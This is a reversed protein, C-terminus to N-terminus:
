TLRLSNDTVIIALIRENKFTVFWFCQFSSCYNVNHLGQSPLVCTINLKCIEFHMIHTPTDVIKWTQHYEAAVWVGFNYM